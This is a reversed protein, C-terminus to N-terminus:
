IDLAIMVLNVASLIFISYAKSCGQSQLVHNQLMEQVKNFSCM